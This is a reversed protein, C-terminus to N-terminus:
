PSDLAQDSAKQRKVLNKLWAFTVRGVRAVPDRVPKTIKATFEWGADVVGAVRDRVQHAGEGIAGLVGEQGRLKPGAWLVSGITGMVAMGIHGVNWDFLFHFLTASKGAISSYIFFQTTILSALMEIRGATTRAKENAIAGDERSIKAAESTKIDVWEYVGNHVPTRWLTQFVASSWRHRLFMLWATGSLINAIHGPYEPDNVFTEGFQAAWFLGITFVVSILFQKPFRTMWSKSAIQWNGWFQRPFTMIASQILNVIGVSLAVEIPQTLLLVVIPATGSIALKSFGATVEGSTIRQWHQKMPFFARIHQFVGKPRDITKVKTELGKRALVEKAHALRNRKSEGWLETGVIYVIQDELEPNTALFDEFSTEDFDAVKIGTATNSISTLYYGCETESNRIRVSDQAFLAGSLFIGVVFYLLSNRFTKFVRCGSFYFDIM